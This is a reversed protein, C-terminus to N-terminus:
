NTSQGRSHSILLSAFNTKSFRKLIPKFVYIDLFKSYVTPRMLVKLPGCHPGGTMPQVYTKKNIKLIEKKLIAQFTAISTAM